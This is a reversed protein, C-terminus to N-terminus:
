CPTVKGFEVIWRFLFFVNWRALLLSRRRYRFTRQFVTLDLWLRKLITRVSPLKGRIERITSLRDQLYHISDKHNGEAREFGKLARTYIEEADKWRDLDVYVNGLNNLADLTSTHEPGCLKEYGTIARLFLEEAETFRGQRRRLSGLSNLTDLTSIHKTGWVENYGELARSYMREADETRGSGAYLNGLNHIVDLTTAHHPGWLTERGELARLYLDEARKTKRQTAYLSGLNSAADLSLAHKSGLADEHCELVRLLLREANQLKGQIRYLVGLNNITELTSVHESGYVDNKGRLARLYLDEAEKLRGLNKFLIGLNNVTDLTLSHNPGVTEEFGALARRYATESETTRGLSAYLYGLNHVTNLTMIHKAGWAENGRLARLYLAEAEKPRGVDTYLIGLLHIAKLYTECDKSTTGAESKCDTDGVVLEYCAEAHPLLRRQMVPGNKAAKAPVAFGVVVAALRALERDFDPGGTNRAWRHVVPHIAYSDRGEVSEVLSYRRLLIMSRTFLLQSTALSELLKPVEAKAKRSAAFATAFVEFCLDKNDFFSWLRLLDAALRDLKQVADFSMSWTTWLTRDLHDSPSLGLEDSMKMLESWHQKYGALYTCLSIGSQQLYAGAQAIALPLGDLLDFLQDSEESDASTLESLLGDM